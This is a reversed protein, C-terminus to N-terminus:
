VGCLASLQMLDSHSALGRRRWIQSHVQSLRIGHTGVSQLRDPHLWEWGPVMCTQLWLTRPLRAAPISVGELAWSRARTQCESIFQRLLCPHQFFLLSNSLPVPHLSPRQPFGPSSQWM